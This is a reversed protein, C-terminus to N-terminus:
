CGVHRRPPSKFELAPPRVRPGRHFLVIPAALQRRATSLRGIGPYSFTLVGITYVRTQQARVALPWAAAGGLLTILDRRRV